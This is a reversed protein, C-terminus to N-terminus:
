NNRDQQARIRLDQIQVIFKLDTDDDVKVGVDSSEFVAKYESFLDDLTLTEMFKNAQIFDVM